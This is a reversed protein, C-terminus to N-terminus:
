GKGEGALLVLEMMMMVVVAAVVVTPEALDARPATGLFRLFSSEVFAVFDSTFVVDFAAFPPLLQAKEDDDTDIATGDEDGEAGAESESM